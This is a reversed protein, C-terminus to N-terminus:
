WFIIRKVVQWYFNFVPNAIYKLIPNEFDGQYLVKGTFNWVVKREKVIRKKQVKKRWNWVLKLNKASFFWKYVKLRQKFWGNCLSFGFLGLEYSVFAPFLLILTAWHYCVLTTIMRNREMWFFQKISKIFEFKHYVVSKYAIVNKLGYLKTKWGWELDDHYMFYEETFEGIKEFVQKSVLMAAGSPYVIQDSEKEINLESFKEKYKDSFGFGLFHLSNGLSNILEPQQHLMLRSQILGIKPDSKYIKLAEILFNPDVTTDMNLMFFYDYGQQIAREIGANNAAGFGVNEANVVIGAQIRDTEGMGFDFQPCLDMIDKRTQESSENDVIFIKLLEKPYNVKSLSDACEKLFRRAYDKYNILIIAIKFNSNM